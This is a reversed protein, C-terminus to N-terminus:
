VMSNFIVKEDLKIALDDSSFVPDYVHITDGEGILLNGDHVNYCIGNPVYTLDISEDTLIERQRNMVIIKNPTTNAIYIRNNSISIDLPNTITAELEEDSVHHIESSENSFTLKNFNHILTQPSTELASIVKDSFMDISKLNFNTINNQMGDSVIFPIKSDTGRKVLRHGENDSTFDFLVYLDDLVAFDIIDETYSGFNARVYDNVSQRAFEYDYAFIKDASTSYTYIRDRSARIAGTNSGATINHTSDFMFTNFKNFQLSVINFVGPTDNIIKGLGFYSLNQGIKLGDIHKRINNECDRLVLSKQYNPFVTIDLKVNIPLISANDIEVNAGIPSLRDLQNSRNFIYNQLRRIESSPLLNNDTGLVAVKVTGAGQWLPYVNSDEVLRSGEKSWLLYDGITGGRTPNNIRSFIRSLYLEDIEEDRGGLSAESNNVSTINTINDLLKNIKDALINGRTGITTCTAMVKKSGASAFILDEDTLFVLQQNLVLQTAVRTLRPVSVADSATFTIEAKSSQSKNKLIGHEIGKIQLFKDYTNPLFGLEIGEKMSNYISAFEMSLPALIDWYTSGERVDSGSPLRNLMRTQINLFSEDTFPYEPEADIAIVAAGLKIEELTSSKSLIVDYKDAPLVSPTRCTLQTDNDINIDQCDYVVLELNILQVNVDADFDTGIIYLVHSENELVVTPYSALITLAMKLIFEM